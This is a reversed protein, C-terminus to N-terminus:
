KAPDAPANAPTAPPSALSGEALKGFFQSPSTGLETETCAPALMAVVIIFIVTASKM